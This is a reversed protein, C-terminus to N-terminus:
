DELVYGAMTLFNAAAWSTWQNITEAEKKENKFRDVKKNRDEPEYIDEKKLPLGTAPDYQYPSLMLSFGEKCALDCYREAIKRALKEKGAHKLGMSLLLQVPAVINGRMFGGKITFDPSGLIESVIGGATMYEQENDLRDAIADIIQRPLRSGLIIPQLSAISGSEVTEGTEV